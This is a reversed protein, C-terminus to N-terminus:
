MRANVSLLHHCFIPSLFFFASSDNASQRLSRPLVLSIQVGPNLFFNRWNYCISFYNQDFWDKKLTSFIDLHTHTAPNKFVLCINKKKRKREESDWQSLFFFSFFLALRTKQAEQKLEPIFDITNSPFLLFLSKFFSNHLCSLLSSPVNM